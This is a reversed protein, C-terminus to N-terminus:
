GVVHASRCGLSPATLASWRKKARGGETTACMERHPSSPIVPSFCRCSFRGAFPGGRWPRASGDLRLRKRLRPADIAGSLASFRASPATAFFDAESLGPVPESRSVEGPSTSRHAPRIKGIGGSFCLIM